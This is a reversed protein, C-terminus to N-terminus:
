KKEKIWEAVNIIAQVENNGESKFWGSDRYLEFSQGHYDIHGKEYWVARAEGLTGQVRSEISYGRKGQTNAWEKIKFGLDHISFNKRKYGFNGSKQFALEEVDDLFGTIDEFLEKSMKINM